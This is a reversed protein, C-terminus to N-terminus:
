SNFERFKKRILFMTFNCSKWVTNCSHCWLPIWAHHLFVFDSMCLFNISLCKVIYFEPNGFIGVKALKLYTSLVLLFFNTDRNRSFYLHKPQVNKQPFKIPRTCYFHYSLCLTFFRRPDTMRWGSLRTQM